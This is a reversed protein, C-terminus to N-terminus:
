RITFGGRLMGDEYLRPERLAYSRYNLVLLAAEPDLPCWAAGLCYNHGLRTTWLSWNLNRTDNFIPQRTRETDVHLSDNYAFPTGCAHRLLRILNHNNLHATHRVKVLGQCVRAWM